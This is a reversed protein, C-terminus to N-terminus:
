TLDLGEAYKFNSNPNIFINLKKNIQQLVSNRLFDELFDQFLGIDKIYGRM